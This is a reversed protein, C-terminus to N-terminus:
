ATIGLRGGLWDLQDSLATSWVNWGHGGPYTRLETTMGAARAAADLQQAAPLYAPDDAGVSFIGAIGPYTNRGLLTLPDNAEYAARDGGFGQAITQEESGLTPHLEGSLDLFSHYQTPDRTVVQLACTGGNSLGAIAWRSRDTDVQFNRTISDPVDSQLYTAVRGLHADSCLPNAAASGLPDPIVVVPALGEHTMAWADMTTQLSGATLWDRPEGPQGALLVLVPLVPRRATLYAPPLYVLGTRPVFAPDSAPIEATIVQGTAPMDAPPTWSALLPGAPRPADGPDNQAAPLQGMTATRYGVGLAAALTPYAGFHANIALLAALAVAVVGGMSGAAAGIARGVGRRPERQRRRRTVAQAVVVACAGLWAWVYRGIGDAVPHWAVDVAWWALVGVVPGAAVVLVQTFWRLHRTRFWWLLGAVILTVSIALPAAWWGLLPIARLADTM